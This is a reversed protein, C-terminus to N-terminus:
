QTSEKFQRLIQNAQKQFNAIAQQPTDEGQFMQEFSNYGANRIAPNYGIHIGKTYDKGQSTMRTRSLQIYAAELGQNDKFYGQKKLLKYSDKTIAVYGTDKAWQQQIKNSTLFKLFAVAGAYEQKSHGQLVWISAGGIIGKYPKGNTLKQNYPLPAVGVKFRATKEISAFLGSTTTLMACKGVQFFKTPDDGRGEYVFAGTKSMNNLMTVQELFPATDPLMQTSLGAFGNENDTYAVNNIASFSEFMTWMLWGTTAGCSNAGEVKILKEADAQYEQWTQPPSKIHAKRFWDINYYLAPSSANFPMAILNGDKDSYYSVVGSIFSNPKLETNYDRFLQYVPYVVSKGAVMMTTTGADYIQSLVPSNNNKVSAITATLTSSYDGKAVSVVTYENQSANFQKIINQLSNQLDGTMANWFVITTKAQSHLTTISIVILVVTNYFIIKFLVKLPNKVLKKM